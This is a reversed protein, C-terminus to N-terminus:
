KYYAYKSYGYKNYKYYSRYKKKAAGDGNIVTGLVNINLQNVTDLSNKFAAYTTVAARAILVMGDCKQAIALSDSVLNVPPTDIIIYDYKEKLESALHEFAVSSFLESPNNTLTGSTLVDLYKNYKKVAKEFTINGLLVDSCGFENKMHLKKNITARRADADIILVKKNLQSLTIAVNVSTTSKGESANPSSFAVTKGDIDALESILRIRVGKYAEVVAFPVKNKPINNSILNIKEAISKKNKADDALDNNMYNKKLAKSYYYNSRKYYRNEKVRAKSFDPIVGIIPIDFRDKFADDDRIIADSYYILFIILYVVVAALIAALVTMTIVNVNVVKANEAENIFVSTNRVISNIYEPTLGLYTNVLNISEEKNTTTITVDIFLTGTSRRRVSTMGQLQAFDYKDGTKAALKKYIESTKLIDTVTEAFNMSTSIDGGEVKSDESTYTSDVIITGNTVIISGTASYKPVTFFTFYGFTMGGAVLAALILAWWRKAAIKLM